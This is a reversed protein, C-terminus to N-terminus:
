PLTETDWITSIMEMIKRRIKTGGNKLLKAVINNEGPAKNSKLKNIINDIKEQKPKEIKPEATYYYITENDGEVVPQNLLQNFYEKFHSVIDKEKTILNRFEDSLIRTQPKFGVKFNGSENFFKRPNFRNRENEEIKKKEHLRKERRLM